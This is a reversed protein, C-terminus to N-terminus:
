QSSVITDTYITEVANDPENLLKVAACRDNYKHMMREGFNDFDGEFNEDTMHHSGIVVLYKGEKMADVRDQVNRFMDEDRCEGEIFYYGDRARKSYQATKRKSADYCVIAVGYRKATDLIELTGTEIEKGERLARDFTGRLESDIIGHDIYANISPQLSISFELFVTKLQASFQEIFACVQHTHKGHGTGEALIVVDAHEFYNKFTLKERSHLREM